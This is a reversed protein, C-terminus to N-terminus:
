SVLWIRLNTMGVWGTFYSASVPVGTELSAVLEWSVHGDPMMSRSYRLHMCGESVSSRYGSDGSDPFFGDISAWMGVPFYAKSILRAVSNELYQYESSGGFFECTLKYREVVSHIFSSATYIGHLEPPNHLSVNVFGYSVPPPSDYLWQSYEYGFLHTRMADESWEAKVICTDVCIISMGSILVLFVVIAVGSRHLGPVSYQETFSIGGYQRPVVELGKGLGEYDILWSTLMVWSCLHTVVFLFLAVLPFLLLGWFFSLGSYSIGPLAIGVGSGFLVAASLIMASFIFALWASEVGGARLRSWAERVARLPNAGHAVRWQFTSLTITSFTTWTLAAIWLAQSPVSGTDGFILFISSYLLIMPLNIFLSVVGGYALMSLLGSPNAHKSPERPNVRQALGGQLFGLGLMASASFPILGISRFIVNPLSGAVFFSADFLGMLVDWLYAWHNPSLPIFIIAIGLITGAFVVLTLLLSKLAIWM